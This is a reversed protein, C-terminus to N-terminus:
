PAGGISGRYFEEGGARGRRGGQKGGAVPQPGWWWCVWGMRGQGGPGGGADQPEINTFGEGTDAEWVKIIHRDSSIV